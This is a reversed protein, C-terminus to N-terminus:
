FTCMSTVTLAITMKTLDFCGLGLEFWHTVIASKTSIPSIALRHVADRQRKRQVRLVISLAIIIMRNVIGTEAVDEASGVSEAGVRSVLEDGINTRENSVFDAGRIDRFGNSRSDDCKIAVDVGVNDVVM